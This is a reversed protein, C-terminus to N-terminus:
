SGSSLHNGGAQEIGSQSASSTENASSNGTSAVVATFYSHSSLLFYFLYYNFALLCGYTVTVKWSPVTFLTFFQSLIVGGYALAVIGFARKPSSFVNVFREHTHYGPVALNSKGGSIYFEEEHKVVNGMSWNKASWKGVKNSSPNKEDYICPKWVGMSNAIDNLSRFHIHIGYVAILMFSDMLTELVTTHCVTPISSHHGQMIHVFVPLVSCVYMDFVSQFFVHRFIYKAYDLLLTPQTQIKRVDFANMFQNPLFIVDGHKGCLFVYLLSPVVITLMIEVSESGLFAICAVIVGWYVVGLGFKVSKGNGYVGTTLIRLIFDKAIYLCSLFYVLMGVNGMQLENVYFNQITLHFGLFFMRFLYYIQRQKFLGTRIEWESQLILNSRSGQKEGGKRKGKHESGGM